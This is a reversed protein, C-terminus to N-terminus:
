PPADGPGGDAEPAADAARMERFVVEVDERSAVRLTPRERTAFLIEVGDPAVAEATVRGLPGFAASGKLATRRRKGGSPAAARAEELATRMLGLALAALQHHEQAADDAPRALAWREPGSSARRLREQLAKRVLPAGQGEACGFVQAAAGSTDLRLLQLQGGATNVALATAALARGSASASREQALDGGRELVDAAHVDDQLEDALTAVADLLQAQVMSADAPVGSCCLACTDSVRAIRPPADRLDLRGAPCDRPAKLAVLVVATGTCLGVVPLGYRDSAAASYEVQYLRGSPSILHEADDYFRADRIDGAAQTRRAGSAGVAFLAACACARAFM